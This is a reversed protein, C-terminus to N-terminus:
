LVDLSETTSRARALAIDELQRVRERTLNMMRGISILKMAGRKAIDLVCSASPDMDLPEIEPWNLKLGGATNVDLYLNFKCGVWPCPRIAHECAARTRPRLSENAEVEEPSAEQPDRALSRLDRISLTSSRVGVRRRYPTRSRQPPAATIDASVIPAYRSVAGTLKRVANSM